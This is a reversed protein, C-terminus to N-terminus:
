EHIAESGFLELATFYASRGGPTVTWTAAQNGAAAKAMGAGIMRRTFAVAWKRNHSGEPWARVPCLQRHDSKGIFERIFSYPIRGSPDDLYHLVHHDGDWSAWQGGIVFGLGPWHLALELQAAPSLHSMLRMAEVAPNLADAQALEYRRQAISYVIYNLMELVGATGFLVGGIVLAIRFAQPLREFHWAALAFCAAFIMYAVSKGLSPIM